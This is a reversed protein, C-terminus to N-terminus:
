HIGSRGFCAPFSDELFGFAEVALAFIHVGYCFVNNLFALSVCIYATFQFLAVIAAQPDNTDVSGHAFFAQCIGLEDILQFHLADAEVTFNKRIKGHVLGGGELAQHLRDFLAAGWTRYEKDRDLCVPVKKTRGSHTFFSSKYGFILNM